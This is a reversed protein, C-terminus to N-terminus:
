RRVEQLAEVLRTLALLPSEDARALAFAGEVEDAFAQLLQNHEAQVRAYSSRNEDHLAIWLEQNDAEADVLRTRNPLSQEAPDIVRVTWLRHGMDVLRDLGDQEAGEWSGPTRM